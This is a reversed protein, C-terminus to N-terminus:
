IPISVLVEGQLGNKDGVSKTVSCGVNVFSAIQTKFQVSFDTFNKNGDVIKLNQNLITTKIKAGVTKHHTVKVEAVCAKDRYSVAVSPSATIVNATAHEANLHTKDSSHTQVTSSCVKMETSVWVGNSFKFTHKAKGNFCLMHSKIETKEYTPHHNTSKLVNYTSTLRFNTNNKNLNVGGGFLLNTQNATKDKPMDMNSISYGGYVMPRVAVGNSTQIKSFDYGMVHSYLNSDLNKRNNMKFTSSDASIINWFHRTNKIRRSNIGKSANNKSNSNKANNSGSGNNGYNNSKSSSSGSDGSGFSGGSGSSGGGFGSDGFSSNGSDGGGFGSDGFHSGGFDDSGFDIDDYDMDRSDIADILNNATSMGVAHMRELPILAVNLASLQEPTLGDVYEWEDDGTRYLRFLGNRGDGVITGMIGTVDVGPAGEIILNESAEMQPYVANIDTLHLVQLVFQEETMPSLLRIHEMIIKNNPVDGGTTNAFEMRFSDGKQPDACCYIHLADAGQSDFQILAGALGPTGIHPCTNNLATITSGVKLTGQIIINKLDTGTLNLVGGNLQVDQLILNNGASVELEGQIVSDKMLSQAEKALNVKAGQDIELTDITQSGDPLNPTDDDLIDVTGDILHMPTLGSNSKISIQGPNGHEDLIILKGGFMKGEYETTSGADSKKIVFQSGHKVTVDGTFGSCDGKVYVTGQSFVVNPVNTPDTVDPAGSISGYLSFISNQGDPLVFDLTASPAIEIKPCNYEDKAGGHWVLTTGSSLNVDGGFMKGTDLVSATGEELNFAGNFWSNDGHFTAHHDGTKRIVVERDPNPIVYPHTGTYGDLSFFSPYINVDSAASDIHVTSHDRHLIATQERAPDYLASTDTLLEIHVGRDPINLDDSVFSSQWRCFTRIGCQSRNVLEIYAAQGYRRAVEEPVTSGPPVEYQQWADPPLYQEFSAHNYIRGQPSHLITGEGVIRNFNYIAGNNQLTNGATIAIEGNNRIEGNNQHISYSNFCSCAFFILASNRIFNHLCGFLM